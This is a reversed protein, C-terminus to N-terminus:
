QTAANSKEINKNISQSKRHCQSGSIVKIKINAQKKDKSNHERQM